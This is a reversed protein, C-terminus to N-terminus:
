MEAPQPPAEYDWQCPCEPAPPAGWRHRYYDFHYPYPRAYWSGAYGFGYGGSWSPGYGGHWGGGRGAFSAAVADAEVVAAPRQRLYGQACGPSAILSAAAFLTCSVVTSLFRQM